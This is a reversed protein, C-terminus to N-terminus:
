VVSKSRDGIGNNTVDGLQALFNSMLRHEGPQWDREFARRLAAVCAQVHPGPQNLVGASKQEVIAELLDLARLDTPTLTAPVRRTGDGPDPVRLTGVVKLIEDATAENRLEYLVQSNLSQLFAYVQQPSRGLVADPLMQLLRFDRSAAYIERLQWLYNEPNASKAFLSIPLACTQVGTM